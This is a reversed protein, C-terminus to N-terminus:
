FRVHFHTEMREMKYHKELFFCKSAFVLRLDMAVGTVDCVIIVHLETVESVYKVVLGRLPRTTAHRVSSPDTM